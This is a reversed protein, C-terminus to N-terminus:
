WGFEVEYADWIQDAYRNAYNEAYPEGRAAENRSRTTM